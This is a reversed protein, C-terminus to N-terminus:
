CTPRPPRSSWRQKLENLLRTNEIAITAQAAFSELLRDAQQLITASGSPLLSQASCSVKRLMPVGLTALEAVDALAVLRIEKAIHHCKRIDSIQV